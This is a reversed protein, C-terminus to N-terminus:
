EIEDICEKISIRRKINTGSVEKDVWRTALVAAGMSLTGRRVSVSLQRQVVPSEDPLASLVSVAEGPKRKFHSM